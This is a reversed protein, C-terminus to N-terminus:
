QRKNYKIKVKGTRPNVDLEVDYEKLIAILTLIAVGIVAVLIITSTAVAGVGQEIHIRKTYISAQVLRKLFKEDSVLVETEGNVIAKKLDKKDNVKM